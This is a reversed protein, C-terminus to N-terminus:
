PASFGGRVLPSPGGSIPAGSPERVLGEIKGTTGQAALRGAGLLVVALGAAAVRALRAFSWRSPQMMSSRWFRVYALFRVVSWAAVRWRGETSRGACWM